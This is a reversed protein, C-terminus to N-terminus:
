LKQLVRSQMRRFVYRGFLYIVISWAAMRIWEETSPLSRYLVCKRMASVYNYVPNRIIVARIQPTTSELPYFLASLYMWLMLLVSYLHKVDGFMAFLVALLYGMGISFFFLGAAYLLLLPMYISPQIRFVFLMIVFAILSYGFNVLATFCRSLPFISMPLKVKILMMKNDVLSTMASNTAGTFLSWM